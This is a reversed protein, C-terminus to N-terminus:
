AGIVGIRGFTLLLFKRRDLSGGYHSSHPDVSLIYPIQPQESGLNSASPLGVLTFAGGLSKTDRSNRVFGNYHCLANSEIAVPYIRVTV